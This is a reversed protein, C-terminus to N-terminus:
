ISTIGVPVPASRSAISEENDLLMVAVSGERQGVLVALHLLPQIKVLQRVPRAAVSLFPVQFTRRGANGWVRRRTFRFGRKGTQGPMVGHPVALEGVQALTQAFHAVARLGAQPHAAEGVLGAEVPQCTGAEGLVQVATGDPIVRQKSITSLIVPNHPHLEAAGMGVLAGIALPASMSFQGAHTAAQVGCLSVSVAPIHVGGGCHVPIVVFDAGGHPVACPHMVVTRGVPKASRQFGSALYVEAEAIFSAVVPEHLRLELKGVEPHLAAVERGAVAHFDILLVHIGQGPAGTEHEAFFESQIAAVAGAVDLGIHLGAQVMFEQSFLFGMEVADAHGGFQFTGAAVVAHAHIPLGRVVETKVHLGFAFVAFMEGTFVVHGGSQLPTELIHFPCPLCFYATGAEGIPIGQM